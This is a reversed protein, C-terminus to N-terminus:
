PPTVAMTVSRTLVTSTPIGPYNGVTNFTYTVTVKVYSIGGSDTGSTSTVTPSPNLNSADALAAQSCSTYGTSTAVSSDSLYLAGDRACNTVTVLDYMVRTYDCTAMFIYSFLPLM